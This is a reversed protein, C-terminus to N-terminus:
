KKSFHSKYYICENADAGNELLLEVITDYGFACAVHLPTLNVNGCFNIDAENQNFVRVFEDYGGRCNLQLSLLTDWLIVLTRM